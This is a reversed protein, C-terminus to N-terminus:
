ITFPQRFKEPSMKIAKREREHQEMLEALRKEEKEWYEVSVRKNKLEDAIASFNRLIDLNKM